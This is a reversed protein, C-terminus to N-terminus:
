FSTDERIDLPGFMPDNFPHTCIEAKVTYTKNKMHPSESYVGIRVEAQNGNIIEGSVLYPKVHYYLVGYKPNSNLHRIAQSAIKNILEKETGVPGSYQLADLKQGYTMNYRDAVMAMALSKRGDYWIPFMDPVTTM